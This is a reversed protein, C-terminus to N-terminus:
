HETQWGARAGIVTEFSHVLEAASVIRFSILAPGALYRKIQIHDTRDTGVTVNEQDFRAARREIVQTCGDRCGDAQACVHDAIAVTTLFITLGGLRNSVVIIMWAHDNGGTGTVIAVTHLQWGCELADDRDTACRQAAGLVRTAPVLDDPIAGAAPAALIDTFGVPLLVLATGVPSNGVNGSHGIGGRADRDVVCITTPAPGDISAGARRRWDNGAGKSQSTIRCLNIGRVEVTMRRVQIRDNFAAVAGARRGVQTSGAGAVIARRSQARWVSRTGELAAAARNAANNSM